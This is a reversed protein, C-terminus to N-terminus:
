SWLLSKVRLLPSANRCEGLFTSRLDARWSWATSACIEPPQFSLWANAESDSFMSHQIKPLKKWHFDDGVECASYSQRIRAEAVVLFSTASNKRAQAACPSVLAGFEEAFSCDSRFLLPETFDASKEDQVYDPACLTLTDETLVDSTIIRNAITTLMVNPMGRKEIKDTMQRM